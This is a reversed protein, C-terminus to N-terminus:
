EVLIKTVPIKTVTKAVRKKTVTKTIPIKTTIMKDNEKDLGIPVLSSDYPREKDLFPM